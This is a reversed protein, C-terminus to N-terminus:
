PQVLVSGQPRDTPMAVRVERRDSGLGLWVTIHPLVLWGQAGVPVATFKVVSSAGPAIPGVQASRPGSWVFGDATDGQVALVAQEHPHANSLTLSITFPVHTHVLAPTSLSATVFAEPPPPLLKPLSLTTTTVPSDNVQWTLALTACAPPSSQRQVAFRSSIAFSTTRDWTQPFSPALSTSLLQVSDDPVLKIDQVVIPRDGPAGLLASVVAPAGRVASVHVTTDLTFPPLFPIAVSETTEHEDHNTQDDHNTQEGKVSSIVSIDLTKTGESAQLHIVKSLTGGPTLVGLAIDELVSDSSVDDVTITTGEQQPQLLVSFRVDLERDDSSSVTVTVPVTEGVYASPLHDVKVALDHPRPAFVVNSHLGTPAIYATGSPATWQTLVGPKVRLDIKWAGQVLSLVVDSVAVECSLDSSVEGSVLFSDKFDLLAEGEINEGQSPVTGVAVSRSSGGNRVVVDPRADSFSVRLTSFEFATMDVRSSVSLQFPVSSGTAAEGARFAVRADFMGGDLLLPEDSSPTTTALLTSLDAAYEGGDGVMGVLLKAATEVAGTAQACEYQLRHLDRLIPQGTFNSGMGDLIALARDHQGAAAYTAATRYAIYLALGADGGGKLLAQAKNLLEIILASHDITKESAFGPSATLASSTAEVAADFRAKREISCTAATYFYFAPPQLVHLPNVTSVVTTMESPGAGPLPAAPAAYAPLPMPPIAFGQQQAIELVEGFVRYQRAVWSWFEFTEEGIGWGRSLETFRRVHVFFPVLM